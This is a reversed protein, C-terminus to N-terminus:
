GIRVTSTSRLNGSWVEFGIIDLTYPTTVQVTVQDDRDWGGTVAINVSQPDITDLSSRVTSTVSSVPNPEARAVAARRAGDRSASTLEMDHWIMVGYQVVAILLVCLIPLCLAIETLAQGRENTHRRITMPPGM